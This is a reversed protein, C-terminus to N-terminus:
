IVKSRNPPMSVGRVFCSSVCLWVFLGVFLCVPRRGKTTYISVDFGTISSDQKKLEACVNWLFWQCSDDFDHDKENNNNWVPPSGAAWKAMCFFYSGWPGLTLIEYFIQRWLTASLRKSCEGTPHIYKRFNVQGVCFNSATEKWLHPYISHALQQGNHGMCIGLNGHKLYQSATINYM